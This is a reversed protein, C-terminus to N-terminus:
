SFFSLKFNEDLTVNEPLEKTRSLADSVATSCWAAVSLDTLLVVIIVNVPELKLTASLSLNGNEESISISASSLSKFKFHTRHLLLLVCMLIEDKSERVVDESFMIGNERLCSIFEDFFDNPHFVNGSHIVFSSLITGLNDFDVRKANPKASFVQDKVSFKQRIREKIGAKSKRFKKQCEAESMESILLFVLDSVWFPVGKVIDIKEKNYNYKMFFMLKLFNANTFDSFKGENREKNHAIFNSVEHFVRNKGSFERLKILISDICHYDFTKNEIKSVLQQIKFSESPKM